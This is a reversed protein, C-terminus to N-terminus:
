ALKSPETFISKVAIALSFIVSKWSLLFWDSCMMKASPEWTMMSGNKSEIPTIDFKTKSIAGPWTKSLASNADCNGIVLSWLTSGAKVSPGASDPASNLSGDTSLERGVALQRQKGLFLQRREYEM